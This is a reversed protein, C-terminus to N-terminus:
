YRRMPPAAGPPRAAATAAAATASAAYQTDPLYRSAALHQPVPAYPPPQAPQLRHTQARALQQSSSLGM